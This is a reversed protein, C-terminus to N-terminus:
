PRLELDNIMPRHDSGLGPGAALRRVRWHPSALCHDIRISAPPFFSPWSNVLGHGRACDRVPADGLAADFV